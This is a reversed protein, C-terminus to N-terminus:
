TQMGTPQLCRFPAAIQSKWFAQPAILAGSRGQMIQTWATQLVKPLLPWLGQEVASVDVQRCNCLWEAEWNPHLELPEISPTVHLMGTGHWIDSWNFQALKDAFNQYTEVAPEITRNPISWEESIFRGLAIPVAQQVAQNWFDAIGQDTVEQIEHGLFDLIDLM